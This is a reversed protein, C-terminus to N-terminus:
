FQDFGQKFDLSVPSYPNEPSYPHNPFSHFLPNHQSPIFNQELNRPEDTFVFSVDKKPPMEFTVNLILLIVIVALVLISKM